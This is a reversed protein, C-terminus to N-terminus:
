GVRVWSHVMGVSRRQALVEGGNSVNTPGTNGGLDEFSGAVPVTKVFATHALPERGVNYLALDGPQPTYVLRLGNRGHAADDHITPVYSYRFRSHNTHGFCYSLYIACWPVGNMGYWQGFMQRNSGWPSEKTGIFQLGYNFAVLGPTQAKLRADRRERYAAPLPRWDKVRLYEYLTQGFVTDCAALPYGIWYKAKKTALGTTHGYVGDVKGDKYPALGAFRNHGQLLWQADKVHQGRTLPSTLRLSPVFEVPM